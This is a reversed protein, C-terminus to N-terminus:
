HNHFEPMRDKKIDRRCNPKWTELNEMKPWDSYEFWSEIWFSTDPHGIKSSNSISLSSSSLWNTRWTETGANFIKFLHMKSSLHLLLVYSTTTSAWIKFVKSDCIIYWLLMQHVIYRGQNFCKNINPWTTFFKFFTWMITM